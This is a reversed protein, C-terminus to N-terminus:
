QAYNGLRWPNLQNKCLAKLHAIDKKDLLVRFETATSLFVKAQGPTSVLVVYHTSNTFDPDEDNPSKCILGKAILTRMIQPGNDYVRLYYKDGTGRYAHSGSYKSQM